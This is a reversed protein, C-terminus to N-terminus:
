PSNPTGADYRAKAPLTYITGTSPGIWPWQTNGFFAPKSTLYMSNPIAFGGPTNHWRQSNTLYDYNGDRIVTTLAGQEASQTWQNTADYGIQWVNPGRWTGSVGGVCSNGNVDCGMMPDTYNWGSMQGPRGLVNGVFSFSKAWSSVGATRANDDTGTWSGRQGTLYNRFFTIYQSSGHTYDSDGNFGWNGEFLVHHPGAMHSANLGIEQFTTSYSIWGDDMYNYAVVSGAGSARSVMVKNVDRSINNEILIESSGTAFSIAYGGGGPTPEAGTYIYSDRIETRFSNDIAVGEGRWQTVEVNKAWCYATVEFRIGGDGGGIATLNEVGANVVQTGGNGGNSNATYGTLQALHSSRYDITLPSTFTVVNGVVSAIEKIESTMRGDTDSPSSSNSPYGRSFWGFADPPDDWSQGPNHMQFVVHDGAKVQIGSPNYGPPVTQYSWNSIEDLLVWQGATFGSANAITVSMAGQVGDATLNRSTTSDPKPWRAQGVIIIPQVDIGSQDSPMFIKNNLPGGTTITGPVVTSTRAKAGNTKKLITTGAGSGRLTISSHVLLYNNVTFVGPNLMVVQGSPCSNLKAQIAASDNGGSPSLTACITTRNPIGGKSMMGPNWTFNRDSPIISGSQSQAHAPAVFFLLCFAARSIGKIM